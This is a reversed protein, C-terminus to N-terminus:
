IPPEVEPDCSAPSANFFTLFLGELIRFFFVEAEFAFDSLLATLTLLGALALAGALAAFTFGLALPFSAGCLGAAGFFRDLSNARRGTRRM